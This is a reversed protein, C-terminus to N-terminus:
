AAHRFAADTAELMELSKNWCATAENTDKAIAAMLNSEGEAEIFQNVNNHYYGGSKSELGDATALWVTCKVGDETSMGRSADMGGVTLLNTGVLGPMVSFFAVGSTAVPFRAAFAKAALINSLKSRGYAQWGDYEAATEAALGSYDISQSHRM